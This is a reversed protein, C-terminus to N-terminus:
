CKIIRWEKYSQWKKVWVCTVDITKVVLCINLIDWKVMREEALLTSLTTVNRYKENGMSLRHDYKRKWLGETNGIHFREKSGSCIIVRYILNKNLM